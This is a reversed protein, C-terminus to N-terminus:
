QQMETSSLGGLSPVDPGDENADLAKWKRILSQLGTKYKQDNEADILGEIYQAGVQKGFIDGLIIQQVNETIGM